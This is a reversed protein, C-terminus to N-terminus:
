GPQHYVIVKRVTGTRTAAEENHPNSFWMFGAAFGGAFLLAVTFWKATSPFM